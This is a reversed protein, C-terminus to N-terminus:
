RADIINRWYLRKVWPRGAGKTEVEVAVSQAATPGASTSVIFNQSDRHLIPSAPLGENIPQASPPGNGDTADTCTLYNMAYLSAQGRECANESVRYTTWAVVGKGVVPPSIVREQEGLAIVGRPDLGGCATDIDAPVNAVVRKRVSRDVVKYVNNQPGTQTLREFDGSGFVLNVNGSPDFFVAPTTTFRRGGGVVGDPTINSVAAFGGNPAVDIRALLGDERLAYCHTIRQDGTADLCVPAALYSAGVPLGIEAVRAGSAIDFAYLNPTGGLGGTTVVVPREDPTGTPFSYIIPEVSARDPGNPL